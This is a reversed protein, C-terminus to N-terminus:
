KLGKDNKESLKIKAVEMFQPRMYKQRLSSM